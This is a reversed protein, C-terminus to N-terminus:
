LIHKDLSSKNSNRLFTQFKRWGSQYQRNTSPRLGKLIDEVTQSPVQERLQERLFELRPLQLVRDIKPESQRRLFSRQAPTTGSMLETIRRDLASVAVTSRDDPGPRQFGEFTEDGEDHDIDSSPPVHIPPEVSELESCLRESRRSTDPNDEIHVATTQRERTNRLSRSTPTRLSEDPESVRDGEVGLPRIICVAEIPFGGM